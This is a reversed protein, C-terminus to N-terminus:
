CVITISVIVWILIGFNKVGGSMIKKSWVLINYTINQHFVKKRIKIELPLRNFRKDLYPM